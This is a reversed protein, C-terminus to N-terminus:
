KLNSNLVEKSEANGRAKDRYSMIDITTTYVNVNSDCCDMWWPGM